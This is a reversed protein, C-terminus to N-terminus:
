SPSAQPSHPLKVKTRLPVHMFHSVQPEVVPQEYRAAAERASLVRPTMGVGRSSRHSRARNFDGFCVCSCASARKLRLSWCARSAVDAMASYSAECAATRLFVSFSRASRRALSASSAFALASAGGASTFGFFFAGAFAFAHPVPPHALARLASGAM